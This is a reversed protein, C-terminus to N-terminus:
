AAVRGAGPVLGEARAEEQWAEVEAAVRADHWGLQAALAQAAARPAEADPACLARADLLGLRTRRLLVDAVTHAQEHSAAFAAEAAIDPLGPTLRRALAPDAAALNLVHQAAHGYRDALHARSEEDVGEVAPLADPEV